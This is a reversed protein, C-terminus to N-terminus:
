HYWCLLILLLVFLIVIWDYNIISNSAFNPTSVTKTSPLSVRYALLLSIPHLVLYLYSKTKTGFDCATNTITTHTHIWLPEKM